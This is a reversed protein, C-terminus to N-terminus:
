SSAHCLMQVTICTPSGRASKSIGDSAPRWSRMTACSGAFRGWSTANCPPRVVFCVHCCEYFRDTEYAKRHLLKVSSTVLTAEKGENIHPTTESAQMTKKNMCKCM